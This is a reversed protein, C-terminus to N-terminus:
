THPQTSSTIRELLGLLWLRIAEGAFHGTLLVLLAIAAIVLPYEVSDQAPHRM